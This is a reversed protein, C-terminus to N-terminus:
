TAPYNNIARTWGPQQSKQKGWSFSYDGEPQLGFWSETKDVQKCNNQLVFVTASGVRLASCNTLELAAIHGPHFTNASTVTGLFVAM